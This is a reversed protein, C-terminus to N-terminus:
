NRYSGGALGAGTNNVDNLRQWYDLEANRQATVNTLYDSLTRANDTNYTGTRNAFTQQNQNANITRANLDMGAADQFQSYRQKYAELANSRLTQYENAAYDQGARDLAVLTGGNLITGQAAAARERTTMLRDLRAQYGPANHLDDLTPNVFDGGTWTPAHYDPLPQYQPADPNSHYPPPAAGFGSSPLGIPAATGGGGGGSSAGGGYGGTDGGGSASGGGTAPAGPADGPQFMGLNADWHYGPPDYAPRNSGADWPIGSGIQAGDPTTPIPGAGGGTAQRTRYAEAEPTSAVASPDYYTKTAWFQDYEGQTLPRGLYTMYDNNVQAFSPASNTGGATWTSPDNPDSYM